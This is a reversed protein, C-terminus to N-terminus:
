VQQMPFEDLSIVRQISTIVLWVDRTELKGKFEWSTHWIEWETNNTLINVPKEFKIYTLVGLSFLQGVSVGCM